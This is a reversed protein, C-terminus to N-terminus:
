SACGERSASRAKLGGGEVSGGGSCGEPGPNEGGGPTPNEGGGPTPNDGGPTPNEGGGGPEPNPNEGGGGGGTNTPPKTPPSTPVEFPGGGDKDRHLIREVFTTATPLANLANAFAPCEQTVNALVNLFEDQRQIYRLMQSTVVKCECLVETELSLKATALNCTSQAQAIQTSGGWVVGAMALAALATKRKLM